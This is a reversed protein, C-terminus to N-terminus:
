RAAAVASHAARGGATWRCGDPSPAWIPVCARLATPPCKNWARLYTDNECEAADERSHLIQWAIAHCYAGYKERTHTLASEDREWYLAVIRSDEM